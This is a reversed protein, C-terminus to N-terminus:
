YNRDGRSDLWLELRHLHELDKPRGALKKYSVVHELRAFPFRDFIEATDILEEIDVNGYAWSHGVTVLGEFFSAVTVDHQALYLRDGASEAADWARGRSLLDLDNVESIVGRVLLPGSGFVVYDGMPLAVARLLAQAQAIKM